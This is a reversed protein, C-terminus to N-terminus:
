WLARMAVLHPARQTHAQPPTVKVVLGLLNTFVGPVDGLKRQNETHGGKCAASM